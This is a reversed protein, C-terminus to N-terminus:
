GAIARRQSRRGERFGGGAAQARGGIGVLPTGVVEGSGASTVPKSGAPRALPVAVVGREREFTLTLVTACSDCLWFHELHRFPRGEGTWRAAPSAEALGTEVLFLKGDDLKRFRVKCGPNACKNLM